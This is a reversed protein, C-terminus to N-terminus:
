ELIDKADVTNWSSKVKRSNIDHHQLESTLLECCHQQTGDKHSHHHSHGSGLPKCRNHYWFNWLRVPRPVGDRCGEVSCVSATGESVVCDAEEGSV